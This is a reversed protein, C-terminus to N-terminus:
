LVQNTSSTNPALLHDLLREATSKLNVEKHYEHNIVNLERDKM